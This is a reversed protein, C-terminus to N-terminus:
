APYRTQASFNGRELEGRSIERGWHISSNFNGEAVIVSDARKELVVVSHTDNSVRLIDGVRVRDFDSHTETVPLSGFAADSCILAFGACGYGTMNVGASFHSNDNTWRMGEPYAAKLGNIAALVASESIEEGGGAPPTTSPAPKQTQSPQATQGAQNRYLYTVINARPSQNRPNFSAGTDKLLGSTDAWAVADTYFDRPFAGALASTGSAAPKGNSRWLFTVVHGNTCTDNPDFTTASTGDTIGNEYAWLVAKYYYDSARVDRFPNNRTAPEPEGKARWLFAAVQGRTCTANPSFTTDGTGKTVGKELAWAVADTYYMGAPVDTFPTKGSSPTTPTTPTTPAAASTKGALEGKAKTVTLRGNELIYFSMGNEDSAQDTWVIRSGDYYPGNFPAGTFTTLKTASGVSGDASYAACYATYNSMWNYEGKQSSFWLITGGEPSAPFLYVYSPNEAASGSAVRRTQTSTFNNKANFALYVNYYDQTSNYGSGKGSDVYASLYGQSTEALACTKSGTNNEGTAGPWKQIIAYTGTGAFKDGGAKAAYKFLVGARPYADGQDLAVLNGAQDVLIDEAFSHSVTGYNTQQVGFRGDTVTMDSQRVSFTMNTQHQLGDSLRYIKHATHVYLMDGCEAFSLNCSRVAESTNSSKGYLSAAGLREWDKTFKVLRLVEKGDTEEDNNQTFILFNYKEGWYAGKLTNLEFKIPHVAIENFDKDFSTIKTQRTDSVVKGDMGITQHGSTWILDCGGDPRPGLNGSRRSYADGNSGGVAPTEAGAEVTAYVIAKTQEVGDIVYKYTLTSTGAGKALITLGDWAIVKPDTSWTNIRYSQTSTMPIKTEKTGSTLTLKFEEVGDRNTGIYTGFNPNPKIDSGAAASPSAMVTVTVIVKVQNGGSGTFVYNLKASGQARAQFTLGDVSVINPASSTIRIDYGQTNVLPLQTEKEGVNMYRVFEMEGTQVVGTYEGFDYNRTPAGGPTTPTTPTTPVAPTDGPESTGCNICVGDRGFQHGFPYLVASVYMAGCKRCPWFDYGYETCTAREHTTAKESTDFDHACSPDGGAVQQIKYKPQGPKPNPDIPSPDIPLSPRGPTSPTEPVDPTETQEPPQVNAFGVNVSPDFETKPVVTVYAIIFLKFPDSSGPGRAPRVYYEVTATGSRIGCLGAANFGIPSKSSNIAKEEVVEHYTTYGSGPLLPKYREGLTGDSPLTIAFEHVGDENVGLYTGFNPNLPYISDDAARAAPVLSLLLALACLVSTLGRSFTHKM